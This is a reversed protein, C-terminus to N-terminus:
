GKPNADKGGGNLAALWAGIDREVDNALEAAVQGTRVLEHLLRQATSLETIVGGKSDGSALEKKARNVADLFRGGGALQGFLPSVTAVWREIKEELQIIVHPFVGRLLEVLPGRLGAADAETISGKRLQKEIEGGYSELAFQAADVRTKTFALQARALPTLLKQVSDLPLVTQARLRDIMIVVQQIPGLVVVTISEEARNGSDDTAVCRVVTDGVPLRKGSAPTCVVAPAPDVLDTAEAPLDAITGVFDYTRIERRIKGLSLVPATTDVVSVTFSGDAQNGAADSATCSVTTAGLPFTSGSAPTCSVSPSPDGIDTAGATYTVAAGGASTAEATLDAPLQLLPAETDDSPEPDGGSGGVVPLLGSGSSAVVDDPVQIEFIASNDFDVFANSTYFALPLGYVQFDVAAWLKAIFRSTGAPLAVSVEFSDDVRESAGAWYEPSGACTGGTPCDVISADYRENWGGFREFQCLAGDWAGCDREATFSFSALLQADPRPQQYTDASGGLSGTVSGKLVVTAPKSLTITDLITAEGDSFIYGALGYGDNPANGMHMGATAVAQLRGAAVDASGFARGDYGACGTQPCTFSEFGPPSPPWNYSSVATATGTNTEDWFDSKQLSSDRAYTQADMRTHASAGIEDIGVSAPTPAASVLALASVAGAILLRLM